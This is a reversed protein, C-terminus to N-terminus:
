IFVHMHKRKERGIMSTEAILFFIKGLINVRHEFLARKLLHGSYLSKEILTQSHNPRNRLLTDPM